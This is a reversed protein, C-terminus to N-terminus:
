PGLSVARWAGAERVFDLKDSRRRGGVTSGITATARDGRVQVGTVRLDTGGVNKLARGLESACDLGSARLRTVVSRALVRSCIAGADHRRGAAALAQVASSVAAVDGKAHPKSDDRRSASGGCGAVALTAVLALAPRRM